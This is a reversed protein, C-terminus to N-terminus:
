NNGYQSALHINFMGELASLEVLYCRVLHGRLYGDVRFGKQFMHYHSATHLLHPEGAGPRKQNVGCFNVSNICYLHM